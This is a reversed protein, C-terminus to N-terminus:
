IITAPPPQQSLRCYPSAMRAIAPAVGAGRKLYRASCARTQTPPGSLCVADAAGAKISRCLSSAQHQPPNLLVDTFCYSATLSRRRMCCALPPRVTIVRLTRKTTPCHSRQPSRLFACTIILLIETKCEGCFRNHCRDTTPDDRFLSMHCMM